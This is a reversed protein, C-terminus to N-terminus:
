REGRVRRVEELWNLIVVMRPPGTAESGPELVAAFREGDPHLDHRINQFGLDFSVDFLTTRSKVEFSQQVDVAAVVMEAATNVYFLERGDPSWIPNSGGDTSVQWKRGREPFGSVYVEPRGSEDSVYALWRDDPSLAPHREWFPGQLYPRPEGSGHLPLVWIDTTAPDQRTFVLERGDATFANPFLAGAASLLTDVQGSGDARKAYLEWGSQNGWSFVVREGDPTWVPSRGGEFTLRTTTGQQIDYIWVDLQSGDGIAVAALNGDPSLQVAEYEALGPRLEETGGRRDALVLSEDAGTGGGGPLFVLSGSRSVAFEGTGTFRVRM